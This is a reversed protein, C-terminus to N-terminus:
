KRRKRSYTARTENVASRFPNTIRLGDFDRGDQLDESYLVDVEAELAAAIITSDWWSFSHRRHIAVADMILEPTVVIPNCAAFEAMLRHLRDATISQSYKRTAVQYFEMMVQTSIVLSGDALLRKVLEDAIFQKHPASADYQYLLINTDCFCKV